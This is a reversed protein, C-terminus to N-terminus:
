QKVSERRDLELMKLVYEVLATEGAEALGVEKV